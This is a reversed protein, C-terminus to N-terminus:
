WDKAQTANWATIAQTVTGTLVVCAGCPCFVGSLGDRSGSKATRTRCAKCALTQTMRRFENAKM